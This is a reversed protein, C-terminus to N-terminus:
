IEYKDPNEDEFSLMTSIKDYAIRQLALLDVLCTHELNHDWEHNIYETPNRKVRLFGSLDLFLSKWDAKDRFCTGELDIEMVRNDIMLTEISKIVENAFNITKASTFRM